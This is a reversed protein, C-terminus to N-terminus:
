GGGVAGLIHYEEGQTWMNENNLVWRHTLVYPTQSETRTNTQQSHHNGSEDLDRCLVCVRKKIVAYYEMPYIYWMKKTWDIM